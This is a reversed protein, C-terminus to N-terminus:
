RSAESEAVYEVGSVLGAAPTHVMSPAWGSLCTVLWQDYTATQYGFASANNDALWRALAEPSELVPSIPTGESVTEYMCWGRAEDDSFEPMYDSPDPEEAAHEAAHGIEHYWVTRENEGGTVFIAIEVLSGKPAAEKVVGPLTASEETYCFGEPAGEANKSKLWAGKAYRCRRVVQDRLEMADKCRTMTFSFGSDPYSVRVTRGAQSPKGNLDTEKMEETGKM